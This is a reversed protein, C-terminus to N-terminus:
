YIGLHKYLNTNYKKFTGRTVVLPDVWKVVGKESTNIEGTVTGVFCICYHQKNMAHYVIKLNEIQLGTEEEVERRIADELSADEPDVKGGPLGFDNHNYKRSVALVQGDERHVLANVALGRAGYNRVIEQMLNLM